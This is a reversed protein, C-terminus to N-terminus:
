ISRFARHLLAALIARDPATFHVKKGGLQRELVDGVTRDIQGQRDRAFAVAVDQPQPGTVATFADLLPEV